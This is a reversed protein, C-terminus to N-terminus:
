LCVGDEVKVGQAYFWLSATHCPAAAVGGAPHRAGRRRSGHCAVEPAVLDVTHPGLLLSSARVSSLDPSSGTTSAAVTSFSRPSPSAAPSTSM